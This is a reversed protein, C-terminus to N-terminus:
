TLKGTFSAPPAGAAPLATGVATLWTWFAANDGQAVSVVADATLINYIAAALAAINADAPPGDVANGAVPRLANKLETLVQTKDAGLPSM